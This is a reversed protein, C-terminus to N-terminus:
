RVRSSWIIARRLPEFQDWFMVLGSVNRCEVGSPERGLFHRPSIAPVVCTSTVIVVGCEKLQRRFGPCFCLSPCFPSSVLFRIDLILLTATVIGSFTVLAHNQTLLTCSVEELTSSRIAIAACARRSRQLPTVHDQAIGM